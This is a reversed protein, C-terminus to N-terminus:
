RKRRQRLVGAIGVGMAIITGPEPVAAVTNFQVDDLATRNNGVFRVRHIDSSASSVTMLTGAGDIGTWTSLINNNVDYATLSMAQGSALNDARVSFSNTGSAVTVNNPDWFRFDIPNFATYDVQNNSNSGSIGNVGSTAHGLGLALVGVYPAGSSFSIGLTSRLQDSLRSAPEIIQGQTLRLNGPFSEFDITHDYSQGIASCSALLAITITRQKM